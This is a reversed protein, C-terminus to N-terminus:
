FSAISFGIDSGTLAFHCRELQSFAVADTNACWAILTTCRLTSYQLIYNPVRWRGERWATCVTSLHCFVQESAPAPVTKYCAAAACLADSTRAGCMLVTDSDAGATHTLIDSANPDAAAPPSRFVFGPLLVDGWNLLM